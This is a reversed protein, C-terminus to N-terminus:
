RGRDRVRTRVLRMFDKMFARGHGLSLSAAHVRKLVLPESVVAVPVARDRLRQFWELDDALGLAPDFGGVEAFLAVRALLTEPMYGVEERDLLERRFAPPPPQGEDLFFRVRCVSYMATPHNRLAAAQKEIKDAAWLDDCSVFAVFEGRAAALGVNRGHAISAVGEERFYRVREFSRAIEPTADTSQGDVVVIELERHTQALVSEITQRLFREGQRVPIIVSVLPETM